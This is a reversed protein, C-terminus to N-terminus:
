ISRKLTPVNKKKFALLLLCLLLLKIGHSLSYVQLLILYYITAIIGDKNMCINLLSNAKGLGVKEMLM